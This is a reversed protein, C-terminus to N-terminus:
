IGVKCTRKYEDRRVQDLADSLHRMIHFKDFVIDAKPAHKGVANRFSRWMDMVAVEIRESKKPGIEAFFLGIEAETRGSDGFWILRGRELDSVVVRYNHGKHIAIEDISIARPAPTGAGRQQEAMYLKSLDKVTSDHLHELEAVAKKTM